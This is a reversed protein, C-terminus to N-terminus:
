KFVHKSKRLEMFKNRAVMNEAVSYVQKKTIQGLADDILKSRLPGPANSLSIRKSRRVDRRLVLESADIMNEDIGHFDEDTLLKYKVLHERVFTWFSADKGEFYSDDENILENFYKILDVQEIVEPKKLKELSINIEEQTLRRTGKQQRFSKGDKLFLFSFWHTMQIIRDAVRGGYENGIQTKNLNTTGYTRWGFDCWYEYRKLLVWRIVNLEEAYHKFLKNDGEDGIDDIMLNKCKIRKKLAEKGGEVYIDCLDKATIKSFLNKGTIRKYRHNIVDFVFTKGQGYRENFAIIGRNSDVTGTLNFIIDLCDKYIKEISTSSIFKTVFFMEAEEIFNKFKDDLIKM